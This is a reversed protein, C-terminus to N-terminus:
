RYDDIHVSCYLFSCLLVSCFLVSCFLVPFVKLSWMSIKSIIVLFFLKIKKNVNIFYSWKKMKGNMWIGLLSIVYLNMNVKLLQFIKYVKKYQKDFSRKTQQAKQYQKKYSNYKEMVMEFILKNGISLGCATATSIPIVILGIISRSLCRLVVQHQPSLFLHIM